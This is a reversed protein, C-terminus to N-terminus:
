NAAAVCRQLQIWVPYSSAHCPGAACHMLMQTGLLARPRWTYTRGRPRALFAAGQRRSPGLFCKKKGMTVETNVGWGGERAFDVTISANLWCCCGQIWKRKISKKWRNETEWTPLGENLQGCAWMKKNAQGSSYNFVTPNYM